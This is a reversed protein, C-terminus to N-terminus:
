SYVDFLLMRPVASDDDWAFTKPLNIQRAWRLQFDGHNLTILAFRQLQRRASRFGRSVNKGNMFFHCRAPGCEFGVCSGLSAISVPLKFRIRFTFSAILM